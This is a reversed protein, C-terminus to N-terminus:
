PLIYAKLLDYIHPDDLSVSYKPFITGFALGDHLPATFRGIIADAFQTHRTDVAVCMSSVPLYPRVVSMEMHLKKAYSHFFGHVLFLTFGQM